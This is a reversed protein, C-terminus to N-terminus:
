VPNVDASISSSAESEQLAEKGKSNVQKSEGSDQPVYKEIIDSLGDAGKSFLALLTPAFRLLKMLTNIQDPSIFSLANLPSGSRTLTMESNLAQSATTKRSLISDRSVFSPLSPGLSSVSSVTLSEPPVLDTNDPFAALTICVQHCQCFKESGLRYNIYLKCCPNLRGTVATFPYTGPMVGM